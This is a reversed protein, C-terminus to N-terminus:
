LAPSSQNETLTKLEEEKAKFNDSVFGNWNSPGRRLAPASQSFASGMMNKFLSKIEAKALAEQAEDLEALEDLRIRFEKEFNQLLEFAIQAPPSLSKSEIRELPSSPLITSM